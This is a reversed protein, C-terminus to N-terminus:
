ARRRLRATLTIAARIALCAVVLAGATATQASGVPFEKLFALVYGAVGAFAGFVAAVVFTVPLPGRVLLLAAIGPLTSMAFAPLAGLAQAAEAVMLGISLLLTLDLLRVPLGQVRAATPDFSALAFGRHLWLQLIMVVVGVVELHHLDDASVVVATGFMISNIDHAEQTIRSGVLVAGASTAAFLLGILMEHSLGFRKGDLSVVGATVLVMALAGLLPNATFGLHIAAYFTLAVGLGAAQTVVASVFVMRRLAVFVSLFGLVAGAVAGAYVADRFLEWSSWFDHWTPAHEPTAITAVETDPVAAAADSGAGSGSGSGASDAALAANIDALDDDAGAGSGGAAPHDAGADLDAVAVLPHPDHDFLHGHHIM